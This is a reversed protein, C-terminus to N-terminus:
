AAAQLADEATDFRFYGATKRVTNYNKREAFCNDNKRCPRSRTPEIHRTLRWSLLPENIFEMGNDYHAGKLPFPLEWHIDSVAEFGCRKFINLFLKLRNGWESRSGQTAKRDIVIV